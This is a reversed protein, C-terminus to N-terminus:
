VALSYAMYFHIGAVLYSTRSLVLFSNTESIGSRDNNVATNIGVLNYVLILWM